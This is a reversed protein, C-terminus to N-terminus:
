SVPNNHPNFSNISCTFSRLVANPVPAWYIGVVLMLLLLLKMVKIVM